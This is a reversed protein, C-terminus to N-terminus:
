QLQTDASSEKMCLASVARGWRLVSSTFRFRRFKILPSHLRSHFPLSSSSSSRPCHSPLKHVLWLLVPLLSSHQYTAGSNPGVPPLLHYTGSNGPSAAVAASIDPIPGGGYVYQQQQQQQQQQQVYHQHQEPPLGTYQPGGVFPPPAPPPVNAQSTYSAAAPQPSGQPAGVGGGGSAPPTASASSRPSGQPQQQQQQQQQKSKEAGM